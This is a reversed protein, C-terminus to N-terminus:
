HYIGMIGRKLLAWFSEISNTHATGVVYEGQGHRVIHHNYDRNLLRYGSHEDTALLNVGKPNAITHVFSDLTATDTNEIMKCVVNGKRSIAGIVPIKGKTGVLDLQNRKAKHMNQAKGGIFTEDAEVEGTLQALGPDKMVARIRTCMYWATEYSGTGMMRHIQHASIGKKAHGM